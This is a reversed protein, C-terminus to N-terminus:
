ASGKAFALQQPTVPKNGSSGQSLSTLRLNRVSDMSKWLIGLLNWMPSLQDQTGCATM